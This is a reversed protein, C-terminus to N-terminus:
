EGREELYDYIMPQAIFYGYARILLHMLSTSGNVKFVLLCFMSLPVLAIVNLTMITVYLSIVGGLVLMVWEWGTYGFYVNVQGLQPPFQYEIGKM